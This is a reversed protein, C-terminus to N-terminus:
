RASKLSKVEDRLADIITKARRLAETRQTLRIQHVALETRARMGDAELAICTELLSEVSFFNEILIRLAPTSREAPILIGLGNYFPLRHFSMDAGLGAQFDEIATLVGNRPGGEHLANALIGNFGDESLESQGQIMGRYAYPHREGPALDAPTYYMDRRAYPWAVDHFLVIPPPTGTESARRFIAQLEGYVTHWNHDGDILALDVPDILPIAELSKLPHWSYETGFRALVEHLAPRPAPDIIDLHCGAERCYDLLRQTNWGSDAGIEMMRRPAATEVIPKVFRTWFRNM